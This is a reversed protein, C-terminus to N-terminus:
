NSLEPERASISNQWHRNKAQSFSVKLLQTTLSAGQETEEAEREREEHSQTM